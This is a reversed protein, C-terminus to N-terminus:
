TGKVLVIVFMTSCFNNTSSGVARAEITTKESVRVPYEFSYDAVGNNISVIAVTRLINDDGRATLRGTIATSGSQQGTAFMGQMLYGTYGAPITYAGTLRTNYDYEIVDYVTAPVGATVGGTGFYITGAASTLSGATRVDCFNIHLYSNVTTVASQGNLIIVEEVEEHAADLGSLFVTRAGTGAATDNADSSSVTLQLAASPIPMLGGHPWVTELSTDIDANYGFVVIPRHNEIQGRSVQLEFPESSKFQSISANDLINSM